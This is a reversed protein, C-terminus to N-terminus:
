QQKTTTKKTTTKEPEKERQENLKMEETARGALAIITHAMVFDLSKVQIHLQMFQKVSIHGECAVKGCVRTM